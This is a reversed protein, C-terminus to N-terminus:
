PINVDLDIIARSGFRIQKAPVEKTVEKSTVADYTKGNAEVTIEYVKDTGVLKGGSSPVRNRNPFLLEKLRSDYPRPRIIGATAPLPTAPKDVESINVKAMAVPQKSRVLVAVWAQTEDLKPAEVDERIQSRFGLAVLIRNVGVSGGALIMATIASTFWTSRSAEGVAQPNYADFLKAMLDLDFNRVVMLAGAFMIPTRWAKGVFFEQFLRWNFLLAFASELLLALVFATVLITFSKNLSDPPIEPTTGLSVLYETDKGDPCSKDTAVAGGVKLTVKAPAMGAPATYLAHTIGNSAITEINKKDTPVVVQICSGSEIITAQGPEVYVDKTTEQADVAGIGISVIALSLILRKFFSGM